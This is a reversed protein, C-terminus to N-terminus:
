RRDDFFADSSVYSIKNHIQAYLQEATKIKEDALGLDAELWSLLLQRAKEEENLAFLYDEDVRETTYAGELSYYVHFPGSGNGIFADCIRRKEISRASYDAFWVYDGREFRLSQKGKM